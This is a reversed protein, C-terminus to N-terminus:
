NVSSILDGYIYAEIREGNKGRLPDGNGRMSTIYSLGTPLDNGRPLYSHLWYSAGRSGTLEHPMSSDSDGVATVTFKRGSLEIVVGQAFPQLPKATLQNETM